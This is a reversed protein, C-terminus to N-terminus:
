IPDFVGKKLQQCDPKYGTFEQKRPPVAHAMAIPYLGQQRNMPSRLMFSCRMQLLFTGVRLSTFFRVGYCCTHFLGRHLSNGIACAM